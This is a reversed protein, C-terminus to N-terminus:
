AGKAAAPQAKLGDIANRLSVDIAVTGVQLRIGALLEPCDHIDLGIAASDQATAVAIADRLHEQQASTLPYATEVNVSGDAHDLAHRVLAADNGGILNKADLCRNVLELHVAEGAVNRVLQGAITAATTRVEADLRERDLQQERAIRQEAEERLQVAEHRAQALLQEREKGAETRASELMASAQAAAHEHEAALQRRIEEAQHAQEDADRMKSAITEERKSMAQRLPRYFFRGLIALLVLFNIIQFIVTSLEFDFM